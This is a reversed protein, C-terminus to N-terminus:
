KTLCNPASDKIGEWFRINAELTSKEGTCKPQKSLEKAKGISIEYAGKEDELCNAMLGGHNDKRCKEFASRSITPPGFLSWSKDDVCKKFAQCNARANEV